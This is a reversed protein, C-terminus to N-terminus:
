RAQRRNLKQVKMFYKLNKHNTWIEFKIAAGELFHRWVELCRVVALMEKDHIEYNRETDSLFKSIFAVLRWMEDLCKMSLVGGTTYNSTGAEVRFKKDLDLVVLVPKITFVRKLKDFAKQQEVEWQWKVDKRMLVNIPRAVQAFDKIFRRYYNALGLFKRVDKVNKPELWSLVRDVKEEEMEIGNPGIVVGLFRIKRVKWVCKELKIYLNNEELRRLIEEVIEDHGEKTETGVLVDDVFAAVKGENILDRLIENMIAQFTAPSNTMGFFMVTPKFSGIHMTFARKWEDGEKIRINNFGWRLDMKTFVKKSGMNDILEIILPLLYNNKV